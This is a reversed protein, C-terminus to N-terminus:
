SRCLSPWFDEWDTLLKYLWYGPGALVFALLAIRLRSAVIWDSFGKRKSGM